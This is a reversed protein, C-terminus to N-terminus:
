FVQAAPFPLSLQDERRRCSSAVPQLQQSTVMPTNRPQPIPSPRVTPFLATRSTSISPSLPPITSLVQQFNRPTSPVVQSQLRKSAPQSPLTSSQHGASNLVMEVEEGDLEDSGEADPDTPSDAIQRIRKVVCKSYGTTGDPNPAESVPHEKGFPGEKKRWLYQCQFGASWYSSM